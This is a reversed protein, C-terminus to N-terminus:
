RLIAGILLNLIIAIAALSLVFVLKRDEPVRLMPGVGTWFLYIGYLGFLALLWGLVPIFIFLSAVWGATNSYVVLKLAAGDDGVGGFKPALFAALKAVLFISLLSFVLGVFASTLAPGFGAIGVLALFGALASAAALPLAYRLYLAQSQNPEAAIIPWETKPSILIAQARQILQMRSLM